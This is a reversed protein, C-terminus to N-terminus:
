RGSWASVGGKKLYSVKEEAIHDARAVCNFPIGIEKKFLACFKKLLEADFLFSSGHFVAFELPYREKVRAVEEVVNEPSRFRVVKGKGRYLRNYLHNFCYTCAYPCGRSAIFTKMKSTRACDYAYFIERDPFPLSDLDKILPRLENRYIGGEQNM